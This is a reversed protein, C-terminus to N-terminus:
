PLVPAGRRWVTTHMGEGNCWETQDHDQDQGRVKFVNEACQGSVRHIDTGLKMSIEGGLSSLDRASLPLIPTLPRVVSSRVASFM